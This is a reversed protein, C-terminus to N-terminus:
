DDIFSAINGNLGREPRTFNHCASCDVGKDKVHKSHLKSFSMSGKDNHCQTCVEAENGKLDYGLDNVLDMRLPGGTLSAHCSGCGLAASADEVGHNITQFTHIKRVTYGDGTRGTQELASQVATDFSGTRFFEYTSHAILSNSADHVASNSTHEKMPYIKANQTNVWGNPLGLTIAESGDKLVTVPYDALNEGLVYVQSTGDFWQYTPTLNLAKDERPLWGGRGNCAAASFHPDEWDRNTETAVGKAYTPIHCTQCAIRTAHKDRSSGVRNSYDGHPRDHCSECTFHEAVDNLRLDLGRGQLRHGGADHCDACTLNEGSSSMHIDIQPGPNILASSLDGRKTGDGGGAKAHCNLCSKRTTAHVSQAASVRDEMMPTGGLGVLTSNADAPEFLFDLTNRDVVPVGKAGTRLLPDLNPDPKGDAGVAVIELPEFEGTPFRKYSDQHCMLCDINSLEAKRETEDLPLESNPFRGNGVHCGACTFRPSNEHSGCYTNIGIAGDGREGARPLGNKSFPTVDNTLNIADGSQQYHVSGHMAVAEDEHCAICTSPGEYVTIGAHAEAATKPPETPPPPEVPAAEVTIRVTDSLSSKDQNDLVVLNYKHTGEGLSVVPSVVDDPNPTGQWIYSTISGDPDTSGSGDLTVTLSTQDAELKHVQDLGADAIPAQNEAPPPESIEKPFCSDPRKKTESSIVDRELTQALSKNIVRVRCPLQLPSRLRVKLADKRLRTDALIQSPDYANEILLTQGQKAKAEVILVSKEVKWLAKEIKFEAGTAIGSLLLSLVVISLVRYSMKKM